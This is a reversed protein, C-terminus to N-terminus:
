FWLSCKAIMNNALFPGLYEVECVFIDDIDVKFVKGIAAEAGTAAAATSRASGASGNHDKQAM